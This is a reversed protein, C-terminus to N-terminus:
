FIGFLNLGFIFALFAGLVLYPAFPIETKMGHKKSFLVLTMGVIAGIWFGIVVGSLAQSLPLLWGLGVALKADGLGMWKGSSVLWFFAFPAAIILGSSFELISPIHPYFGYSNFFFLGVFAFIALVLSLVDPIIKHRFDYVAIVMLLSFAVAYFAYTFSFILTNLFFIDQFKLFLLAFILGTLFEVIPYQISIKAKCNKCRGRLGLFSFVPILEYWTLKNMCSMCGSRGGLSRDTNFRLIVVNLFSGIILGLIFFIITLILVM